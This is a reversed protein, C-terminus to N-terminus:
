GRYVLACFVASLATAANWRAPGSCPGPWGGPILFVPIGRAFRSTRRPPGGRSWSRGAVVSQSTVRSTAMVTVSPTTSSGPVPSSTTPSPVFCRPSPAPRSPAPTVPSTSPSAAPTPPGTPGHRVCRDDAPVAGLKGDGSVSYANLRDLPHEAAHEGGVDVAEFAHRGVGRRHVCGCGANGEDRSSPSGNMTTRSVSCPSM